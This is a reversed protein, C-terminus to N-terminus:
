FFSIYFISELPCSPVLTNMVGTIVTSNLATFNAADLFKVTLPVVNGFLFVGGPGVRVRFSVILNLVNQCVPSSM